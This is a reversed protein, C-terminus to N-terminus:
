VTRFLNVVINVAIKKNEEKEFFEDEFFRESGMVFLRGKKTKSVACATLPRNAPYSIVGSNFVISAAQSVDLSQGYPYVFSLTSNNEDNNIVNDDDMMDDNFVIKKKKSVNKITRLFEPHVKCNEVYCEKPHLYKYYATRVVSDNHFQIGYRETFNSINTTNRLYLLRM